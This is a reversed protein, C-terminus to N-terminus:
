NDENTEYKPLALFTGTFTATGATDEAAAPLLAYKLTIDEASVPNNTFEFAVNGSKLAYSAGEEKEFPTLETKLTRLTSWVNRTVQANINSDLKGDLLTLPSKGSLTAWALPDSMILPM